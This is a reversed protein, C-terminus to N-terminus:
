AELLSYNIHNKATSICEQWEEQFSLRSKEGYTKRRMM